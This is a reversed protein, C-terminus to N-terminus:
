KRKKKVDRVSKKKKKVERPEEDLLYQADEEEQLDPFLESLTPEYERNFDDEDPIAENQWDTFGASYTSPGAGEALRKRAQKKEALYMEYGRRFKPHFVDTLPGELDFEDPETQYRLNEAAQGTDFLLSFSFLFDVIM